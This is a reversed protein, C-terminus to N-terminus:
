NAYIDGWLGNKTRNSDILTCIKYDEVWEALAFQGSEGLSVNFKKFGKSALTRICEIAVEAFESTFEFAVIGFRSPIGRVVQLEHGEVDIKIFRAFGFEVVLKDITLVTVDIESTWKHNKFRGEMWHKSFTSLTPAEECISLPMTGIFDSVGAEIIKANNFDRFREQLEKAISPNPEVLIVNNGRTVFPAAFDGINSGIDFVTDGPFLSDLIRTPVAM